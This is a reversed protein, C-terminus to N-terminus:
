YGLCSGLATTDCPPIKGPPVSYDINRGPNLHQPLKELYSTFFWIDGLKRNISFIDTKTIKCIDYYSIMAKEVGDIEGIHQLLM